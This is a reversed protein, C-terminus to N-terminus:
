ANRFSESVPGDWMEAIVGIATAFADADTTFTWRNPNRCAMRLRALPITAVAQRAIAESTTRYM